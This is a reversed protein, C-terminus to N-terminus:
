QYAVCGEDNSSFMSDAQTDPILPIRDNRPNVGFGNYEKSVAREKYLDDPTDDARCCFLTTQKISVTFSVNEELQIIFDM